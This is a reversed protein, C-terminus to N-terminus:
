SAIIDYLWHYLGLPPNVAFTQSRFGKICNNIIFIPLNLEDWFLISSFPSPVRMDNYIEAHIINKWKGLITKKLRNFVTTQNLLRLPLLRDFNILM